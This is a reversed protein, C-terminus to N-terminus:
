DYSVHRKHLNRHCRTGMRIKDMARHKAFICSLGDVFRKKCTVRGKDSHWISLEDSKAKCYVRNIFKVASDSLGGASDAAFGIVDGDHLFREYGKDKRM